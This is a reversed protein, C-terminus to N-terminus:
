ARPHVFLARTRPEEATSVWGRAHADPEPGAGPASGEFAEGARVVDDVGGGEGDVPGGALDTGWRIPLSAPSPDAGPWRHGFYTTPDELPILDQSASM